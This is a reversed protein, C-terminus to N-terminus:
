PRQGGSFPSGCFTSLLGSGPGSNPTRRQSSEVKQDAVREPADAGADTGGAM